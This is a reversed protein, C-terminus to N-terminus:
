VIRLYKPTANVATAKIPTLTSALGQPMDNHLHLAEGLDRYKMAYLVPAFTERKVMETQRPMEVLAPQAYFAAECGSVSVWKGGTVKAGDAEAEALSAQMM